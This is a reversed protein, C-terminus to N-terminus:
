ATEEKHEMVCNSPRCNSPTFYSNFVTAFWMEVKYALDSGGHKLCQGDDWFPQAKSPLLFWKTLRVWLKVLFWLKLSNLQSFTHHYSNPGYKHDNKHCIEKAKVLISGFGMLILPFCPCVHIIGRTSAALINKHKDIVPYCFACTTITAILGQHKWFPQLGSAPERHPVSEWLRTRCLITQCFSARSNRTNQTTM